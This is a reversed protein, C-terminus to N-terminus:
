PSAEAIPPPPSTQGPTKQCFYEQSDEDRDSWAANWKQVMSLKVNADDQERKQERQQAANDKSNRRSKCAVRLQAQAAPRNSRTPMCDQAPRQYHALDGDAHDQQRACGEKQSAEPIQLLLINAQACLTYRAAGADRQGVIAVVRRM